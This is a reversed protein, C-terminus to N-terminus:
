DFGACLGAMGANFEARGRSTATRHLWLPLVLAVYVATRHPKGGLHSALSLFGEGEATGFPLLFQSRVSRYAM